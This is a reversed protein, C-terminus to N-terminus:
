ENEPLNDPNPNESNSIYANIDPGQNNALAKPEPDNVKDDPNNAGFTALTQVIDFGKWM